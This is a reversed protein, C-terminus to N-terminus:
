YLLVFEARRNQSWAAEDHGLSVPREKGFSKTQLRAAEVGLGILYARVALARREGLALNYEASGREDCHGEIVLSSAPQRRMSEALPGLKSRQAEPIVASDYGFYVPEYMGAQEQAGEGPRGPLDEGYPDVDWVGSGVDGVSGSRGPGRVGKKKCGGAPVLCCVLGAMVVPVWWRSHIM